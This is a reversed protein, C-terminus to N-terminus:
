KLFADRLMEAFVSPQLVVSEGCGIVNNGIDLLVAWEEPTIINNFVMGSPMRFCANPKRTYFHGLGENNVEIFSHVLNHSLIIRENGDVEFYFEIFNINLNDIDSRNWGIFSREQEWNSFVEVDLGDENDAVERAAVEIEEQTAPTRCILFGIRNRSFYEPDAAIQQLISLDERPFPCILPRFNREAVDLAAQDVTSAKEFIEDFWVSVDNWISGQPKHFTGAELLRAPRGDFGLGGASANASGVIVGVESLYVKAHLGDMFKINPNGPAGLERLARPSTSGMQIDCLIKWDVHSEVEHFFHHSGWYAVACKVIDADVIMRIRNTLAGGTLFEAMMLGM